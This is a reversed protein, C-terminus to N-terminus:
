TCSKMLKFKNRVNAKEIKCCPKAVVEKDKRSDQRKECVKRIM